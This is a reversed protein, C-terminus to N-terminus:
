DLAGRQGDSLRRLALSLRGGLDGDGADRIKRAAVRLGTTSLLEDWGASRSRLADASQPRVISRDRIAEGVIAAVNALTDQQRQDITFPAFDTTRDLVLAAFPMTRALPDDKSWEDIEDFMPVSYLGKLQLPRASLEYKLADKRPHSAGILVYVPERLRFVAGVGDVDTRVRLHDDADNDMNCTYVTKAHRGNVDPLLVHARIREGSWDYHEALLNVVVTLVREIRRPDQPGVEREFYQEVSRRADDVLTPAAERAADFRLTGIRARLDIAHYYEVRRERM